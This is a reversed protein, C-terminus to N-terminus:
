EYRLSQVPDALATRIAQYSITLLAISLALMGALVFVTWGPSTAYAFNGLWWELAFWALPVALVFAGAVLQLFDRALLGVLSAVSAGMVKRVGIEKTRREATFAALGFLGLCAILIALGAAWMLLEATQQEAAYLAALNEDLFHFTFPRDPAFQTWVSEIAALAEATQDPALRISINSMWDVPPVFFLLPSITEHLSRFHFDEVVGVVPMADFGVASMGITKNLATGDWGLAAIAAQNLLVAGTVDTGLEPSFDRGEVVNM